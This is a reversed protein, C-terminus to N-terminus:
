KFFETRTPIKSGIICALLKTRSNVNLKTFISNMHCKVTGVTINLSAAIESNSCGRRVLEMVESEKSTIFFSEKFSQAPAATKGYRRECLTVIFDKLEEVPTPKTLFGSISGHNVADIAVQLQAHGTLIIRIMDPAVSKSKSLLEIGSMAPMRYDSIIVTFQMGNELLSLAEVPNNTTTVDFVGRMVRRMSSLFSDDDDVLLIRIAADNLM